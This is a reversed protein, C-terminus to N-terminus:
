ANQALDLAVQDIEQYWKVWMSKEASNKHMKQVHEKFKDKRAAPFPKIHGRHCGPAGCWLGGGNDAHFTKEHRTVEALRGFSRSECKSRTCRFRPAADVPSKPDRIDVPPDPCSVVLYQTPLYEAPSYQSPSEETVLDGTQLSGIWPGENLVGLFPTVVDDDSLYKDFDFFMEEDTHIVGKSGEM